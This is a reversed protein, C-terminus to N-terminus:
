AEQTRGLAMFEKFFRLNKVLILIDGAIEAQGIKAMAFLDHFGAEPRWQWFKHLADANTKYAFRYPTKKSSGQTIAALQGKEFTLYFEDGDIELLVTESFLRGMRVMHPTADLRTQMQKLRDIM